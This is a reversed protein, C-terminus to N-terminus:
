RPAPVVVPELGVARLAPELESARGSIAVTLADSAVHERFAATVDQASPLELEAFHDNVFGPDEHAGALAAAQKAIDWATENALPAVGLLFERADAIEADTFPSGLSVGDLMRVVADAAVETRFSGGVTFQGDGRRASFGGQIGYTYGLRERLELNLRSAFAGTIAHGALKLAAWQPHRRGPTLLGMQVTAQVAEPMDALVVQPPLPDAETPEPQSGHGTWAGLPALAEDVDLGTLDGALVFTSGSPLWRQQHWAVVDEPTIAGLTSPTGAVPRGERADDGHLAARFTRRAVADPSAARSDHSAIQLAVHHAVDDPAYEPETIVEALLRSVEVLRRAPADGSLRTANHNAMGSLSAGQLELLEAIRGDPNSVTGEDVANLAVTAVGEVARPELALSSPMVVEFAAVHQGPLDYIWASAGNALPRIEPSPFTWRNALRVQPRMM